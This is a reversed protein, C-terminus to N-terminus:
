EEGEVHFPNVCGEFGCSCGDILHSKPAGHVSAVFLKFADRRRGLAGSVPTDGNTDGVWVLHEGRVECDDLLEVYVDEDRVTQMRGDKIFRYAFQSINFLARAANQSGEFAKVADIDCHQALRITFYPYMATNDALIKRIATTALGVEDVMDEAPVTLAMDFIQKNVAMSNKKANPRFFSRGERVNGKIIHDKAVCRPNGCTTKFLTTLTTGEYMKSGRFARINLNRYSGDDQRVGIVPSRGVMAGTWILCDGEQVLKEKIRESLKKRKREM